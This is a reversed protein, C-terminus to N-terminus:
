RCQKRLRKRMYVVKGGEEFWVDDMLARMFYIGRGHDLLRNNADTPDPVGDSDFGEGEDRVTISIEGDLRCRCTVYVRKHPNEHNGHIIANALAERLPTEIDFDDEDVADLKSILMNLFRMFRDVFPSIVEVQSPLVQQLEIFPASQSSSPEPTPTHTQSVDDKEPKVIACNNNTLMWAELRGHRVPADGFGKKVM